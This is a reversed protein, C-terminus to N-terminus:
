SNKLTLDSREQLEKEVLAKQKLLKGLIISMRVNESGKLNNLRQQIDLTEQILSRHELELQKDSLNRYNM